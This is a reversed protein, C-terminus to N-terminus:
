APAARLLQLIEDGYKRLKSEGVGSVRLLEALSAPRASAIAA